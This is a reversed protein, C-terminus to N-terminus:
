VLRSFARCGPISFQTKFDRAQGGLFKENPLLALNSIRGAAVAKILLDFDVVEFSWIERFVTETKAENPLIVPAVPESLIEEALEPNAEAEFTGAAVTSAYVLDAKGEAVAKVAATYDSINVTVWDDKKVIHFIDM